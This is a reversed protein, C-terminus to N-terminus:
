DADVQVVADYNHLRAWIFGTRLAVGVGCNFPLSVVTIGKQRVIQATTDFSGDDVVIIDREWGLIPEADTLDTLTQEVIAEENFAPVM